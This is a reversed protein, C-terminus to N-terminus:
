LFWFLKWYKISNFSLGIKKSVWDLTDMATTKRVSLFSTCRCLSSFWAWLYSSRCQLLGCSIKLSDTRSQADFFDLTQDSTMSLIGLFTSLHLLVFRLSLQFQLASLAILTSFVEPTRHIESTESSSLFTIDHLKLRHEVEFCAVRWLEYYVALCFEYDGHFVDFFWCFHVSPWVYRHNSDNDSWHSSDYSECCLIDFM